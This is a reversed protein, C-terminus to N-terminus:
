RFVNTHIFCVCSWANTHLLMQKPLFTLNFSFWVFSYIVSYFFLLRVVKFALRSWFLLLLIWNNYVPMFFIYMKFTFECLKNKQKLSLSFCLISINPKIFSHSTMLYLWDNCRVWYNIIKSPIKNYIQSISQFHLSIEFIARKGLNGRIVWIYIWYENLKNLNFVRSILFLTFDIEKWVRLM